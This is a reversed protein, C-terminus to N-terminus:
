HTDFHRQHLQLHLKASDKAARAQNWGDCVDKGLFKHVTEGAPVRGESCPTSRNWWDFFAIEDATM